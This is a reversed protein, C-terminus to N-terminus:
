EEKTVIYARHYYDDINKRMISLQEEKAREETDFPGLEKVQTHDLTNINNPDKHPGHIVYYNIKKYDM